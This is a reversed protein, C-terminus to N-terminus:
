RPGFIADGNTRENSPVSEQKLSFVINSFNASFIAGMNIM